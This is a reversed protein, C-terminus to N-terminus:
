LLSLTPRRASFPLFLLVELPEGDGTMVVDWKDDKTYSPKSVAATKTTRDSQKSRRACLTGARGDSACM